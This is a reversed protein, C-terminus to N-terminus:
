KKESTEKRAAKDRKMIKRKPESQRGAQRDQDKAAVKCSRLSDKKESKEKLRRRAM